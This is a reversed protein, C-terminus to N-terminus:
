LSDFTLLLLFRIMADFLFLLLAVGAASSGCRGGDSNAVIPIVNNPVKTAAYTKRLLM